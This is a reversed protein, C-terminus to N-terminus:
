WCMAMRSCSPPLSRGPRRWAARRRGPTRAPDFLEATALINNSRDVGGVALVEDHALRVQAGWERPSQMAGVSTWQGQVQAFAPQFGILALSLAGAFTAFRGV